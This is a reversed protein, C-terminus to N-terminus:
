TGKLIAPKIYGNPWLVVRYHDGGELGADDSVSDLNGYYVLAGYIGAPLSISEAESPDVEPAYIIMHGSHINISCEAVRDWADFSETPRSQLIEIVIRTPGGYRASGVSILDPAVALNDSVAQKDWLM